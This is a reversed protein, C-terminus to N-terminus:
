IEGIDRQLKFQTVSTLGSRSQGLDQRGSIQCTTESTCIAERVDPKLCKVAIHNAGSAKGDVADGVPCALSSLPEASVVVEDSFFITFASRLTAYPLDPKGHVILAKGDRHPNLMMPVIPM